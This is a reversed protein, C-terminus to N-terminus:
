LLLFSVSILILFICLTWSVGFQRLIMAVTGSLLSITIPLLRVGSKVEFIFVEDWFVRVQTGNDKSPNVCRTRASQFQLQRSDTAANTPVLRIAAM